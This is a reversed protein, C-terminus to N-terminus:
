TLVILGDSRRYYERAYELEGKSGAYLTFLRDGKRVHLGIPSAFLIGAGKTQPAGALKAIRALKRNDISAVIGDDEAIVDYKYLAPSPESFGGQADCIALFKAYAAGNRLLQEAGERGVLRAAISLAREELDIPRGADGRLVSLVDMAELSPGIGRGVPQRGDTIIVDVTLGIASGIVTFSDSLRTAEDMTRVKATSGVPIDLVVRTAGASVKKSLVSAIMQGRSDINLAREVSILMDDAPSLSIGGGWVICGGEKNVVKRM